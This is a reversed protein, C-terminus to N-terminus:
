IHTSSIISTKIAPAYRGWKNLPQIIAMLRRPGAFFDGLADTIVIKLAPPDTSPPVITPTAFIIHRFDSKVPNVGQPMGDTQLNVEMRPNDGDSFTIGALTITGAFWVDYFIQQGTLQNITPPFFQFYVEGNENLIEDLILVDPSVPPPPTLQLDKGAYLLPFNIKQFLAMSKLVKEQGWVNTWLFSSAFEGWANRQGENLDNAYIRSLTTLLSSTYIQKETRPVNPKGFQRVVNTKGYTYFIGDWHKGSARGSSKPDLVQM